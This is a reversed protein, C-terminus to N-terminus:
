NSSSVCSLPLTEVRYGSIIFSIIDKVHRIDKTLQSIFDLQRAQRPTYRNCNTAFSFTIPKHDTYIAIERGEVFHRFHRISLYIALLERNFTIYKTEAPSLKKSFYSIPTWNADIFQQLVAEVAKNSADTMIYTPSDLKPHSLM